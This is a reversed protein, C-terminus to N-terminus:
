LKQSSAVNLADTLTNKKNRSLPIQSNEIEVFKSNYREVKKLNIIYSKHIRLFKKSPLENEFAKMTSLIVFSGNNTILKVYDGLAEIWKIDKIYVKRKKLNSKIFIHQTDTEKNQEKSSSIKLVKDIANQFLSENLPKALFDVVDYRYSKFAHNTNKTTIIVKPMGNGTTKILDLFEFGNLNPTDIELFILDTNNDELFELADTSTSFENTSRLAHHSNIKSITNIRQLAHPDIVICNIKM